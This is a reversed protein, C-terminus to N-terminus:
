WRRFYTYVIGYYLRWFLPGCCPCRPNQCKNPNAKWWILIIRRILIM